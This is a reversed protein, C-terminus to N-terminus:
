ANSGEYLAAITQQLDLITQDKQASQEYLDSCMQQTSLLDNHLKETKLEHITKGSRTRKTAM